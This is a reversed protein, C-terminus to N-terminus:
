TNCKLFYIGQQEQEINFFVDSYKTLLDYGMGALSNLLTETKPM